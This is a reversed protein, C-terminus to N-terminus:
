IASVVNLLIQLYSAQCPQVVTGCCRKKAFIQSVKQGCLTM